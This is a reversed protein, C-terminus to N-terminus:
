QRLEGRLWSVHGVKLTASGFVDQLAFRPRIHNRTSSGNITQPTQTPTPVSVTVKIGASQRRGGASGRGFRANDTEQSLDAHLPLM